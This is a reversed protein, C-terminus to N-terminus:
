KFTTSHLLELPLRGAVFDKTAHGIQLKTTGISEEAGLLEAVAAPEAMHLALESQM